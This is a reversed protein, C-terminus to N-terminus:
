CYMTVLWSSLAVTYLVEVKAIDQCCSLDLWGESEPVQEKHLFVVM